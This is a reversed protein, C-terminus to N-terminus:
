MVTVAQNDQRHENPLRWHWKSGEKKSKINLENKAREVTRWAYGAELAQKKIEQQLTIPHHLLLNQLFEKADELSGSDDFTNLTSNIAEDASITVIEDLWKIRSTHINDNISYPEIEFAFGHKCNGLNNKLQLFLRKNEDTKDKAVIFAARSAATFAISGSVRSIANGSGMKNLHSVCIIAVNHKETLKFLPALASRVENNNHSNINGLYASIPDIFVVLINGAETLM